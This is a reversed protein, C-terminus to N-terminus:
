GTRRTAIAMPTQLKHSVMAGDLYINGSSQVVAILQDIKDYFAKLPVVAESGAEGVLAQTPATVIGGSALATTPDQGKPTSSFLNVVGKGIGSVDTNDAILGALASGAYGGLISGLFGGVPGLATGAIGGIITGGLDGVGELVQKGIDQYTLGQEKMAAADAGTSYLQYAQMAINAITGLKPIMKLVKKLAPGEFLKSIYKLPNLKGGVKKVGEWASGMKKGLWSFMGGGGKGAASTATPAAKKAVNPASSTTSGATSDLDMGGGEDGGGGMMDMGAGLGLAGLGGTLAGMIGRGRTRGGRVRTRGGRGRRGRRGGGGTGGGDGGAGRSVDETFLPKAASDGRKGATMKKILFMAGGILAAGGLITSVISGLAGAGPIKGLFGFMKSVWGFATALGAAVNAIGDVLFGLPGAVLNSFADHFKEGAESLKQTASVQQKSLDFSKGQVIGAEIDDALKGKGEARLKALENKQNAGLKALKEQKVLSNALEDSSMGLSKALADQQIRNMNTFEASGKINKLVEAAAGATDGQMALFRAQNLNLDKGILAEAEYENALSSEIDLLQDSIGKTQELSLGLKQSQVVAKAILEPSNKYFLALQGSTKAVEQIVKKNNLLGKNQGTINKLVTEQSQGQLLAFKSIEAAEDAQLGLVDTLEVQGEILEASMIASTGFSENLQNTAELASKNNVALAHSNSAIDRTYDVMAKAGTASIAYNKGTDAVSKSYAAGLDYLSKLLKVALTLQIVPDALATGIGKFVGSLGTTFTKFKSGSEATKQMDTKINEFYESRVGLKGLFGVMGEVAKGAIGMAKSIKEEKKIREETLKLTQALYNNTDKTLDGNEDILGQLELYQSAQKALEKNQTSTAITSLRETSLNKFKQDLATKQLKLNSVEQEAKKKVTELDTKNLKSIGESDYRLKDALGGLTKFSNNIKKSTDDVKSLDSVVSKFTQSLDTFENSMEAMEKKANGLERAYESTNAKLTAMRDSLEKAQLGSKRLYDEIQKLEKPDQKPADAM